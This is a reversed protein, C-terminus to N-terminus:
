VEKELAKRAKNLIGSATVSTIFAKKNEVTKILSLSAKVNNIEKNNVRLIGMDKNFDVLIPGAKAYGLEGIYSLIAMNINNEAQKKSFNTESNIKFALYRKKERLTPLLKIKSVLFEKM